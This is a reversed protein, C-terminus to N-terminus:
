VEAAKFLHQITTAQLLKKAKGKNREMENERERQWENTTKLVNVM